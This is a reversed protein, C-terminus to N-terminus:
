LLLCTPQRQSPPATLTLLASTKTGHGHLALNKFAAALRDVSDQLSAVQTRPALLEEAHSLASSTRSHLDCLISAMWHISDNYKRQGDGETIAINSNKFGPIIVSALDKLAKAMLEPLMATNFLQCEAKCVEEIGGVTVPPLDVTGLM